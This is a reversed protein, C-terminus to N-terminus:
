EADDEANHELIFKRLCDRCCLTVWDTCENPTYMVALHSKDEHIETGCRECKNM